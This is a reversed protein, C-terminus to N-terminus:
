HQIERQADVQAQYSAIVSPSPAAVEIRDEDRSREAEQVTKAVTPFKDADADGRKEVDQQHYQQATEQLDRRMESAWPKGDQEMREISENAKSYSEKFDQAASARDSPDKNVLRQADSKVEALQSKYDQRDTLYEKFDSNADALSQRAESIADADGSKKAATLQEVATDVRNEMQDLRQRDSESFEQTLSATSIDSSAQSRPAVQEEYRHVPAMEYERDHDEPAEFEMDQPMEAALHRDEAIQADGDSDHDDDVEGSMERDLAAEAAAEQAEFDDYGDAYPDRGEDMARLVEDARAEADDAETTPPQIENSQFEQWGDEFEQDEKADVIRDRLRDMMPSQSEETEAEAKLRDETWQLLGEDPDGGDTDAEPKKDQMLAEMEQRNAEEQEKQAEAPDIDSAESESSKVAESEESEGDKLRRLREEEAQQIKEAVEAGSAQEVLTEAELAKRLDADTSTVAELKQYLDDAQATLTEVDAVQEKYNKSEVGYLVEYKALVSQATDREYAAAEYTKRAELVQAAMRDGNATKEEIELDYAAQKEEFAAYKEAALQRAQNLFPISTYVNGKEIIDAAKKDFTSMTGPAIEKTGDASKYADLHRRQDDLWQSCDSVIEQQLEPSLQKTDLKAKEIMDQFLQDQLQKNYYSLNQERAKEHDQRADELAKLNAELQALREEDSAKKTWYEQDTAM